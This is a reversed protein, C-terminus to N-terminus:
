AELRARRIKSGGLGISSFCKRRLPSTGKKNGIAKCRACPTSVKREKAACPTLGDGREGGHRGSM